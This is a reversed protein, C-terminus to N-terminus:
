PEAYPDWFTSVDAVHEARAWKAHGDLFLCNLGGTHRVGIVTWHPDLLSYHFAGQIDSGDLLLIKRSPDSVACLALAHCRSSASYGPPRAQDPCSYVGENRIYPLLADYWTFELQGYGYRNSFLGPPGSPSWTLPLCDDYDDGYMAFALGLQRENSLCKAKRASARARSFVPLLISALIAM